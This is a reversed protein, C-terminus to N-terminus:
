LELRAFDGRSSGCVPRAFGEPLKTEYLTFGCFRCQWAVVSGMAQEPASLSGEDSGRTPEFADDNGM